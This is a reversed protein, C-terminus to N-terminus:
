SRIRKQCCLEQKSGDPKVRWGKKKNNILDFQQTFQSREMWELTHLVSIFLTNPADHPVEFRVTGSSAGNNTVGDNYATGGTNQYQLQIQFPHAGMNNVFEVVSGRAVYLTPDHRTFTMGSGVFTYDSSGNAGLYWRQHAANSVDGHYTLIGVSDTTTVIGSASISAIGLTSVGVVNLTSTRVDATSVGSIGTLASGDGSFSTATLIGTVVAGTNTTEFKKSGDFYVKVSSSAAAVIADENTATRINVNNTADISLSDASKLSTASVIGTVNVGSESITVASGVISSTATVVGVVNVGSESITVASGVIASTATTIGVTINPTGTLSQATSATGTVNGTLAGTISTFTAGTGTINGAFTTASVIGSVTM